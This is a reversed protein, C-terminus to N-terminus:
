GASAGSSRLATAGAVTAVQPPTLAPREPGPAGAPPAQPRPPAPLPFWDLLLPRLAHDALHLRDVLSCGRCRPNGWAGHPDGGCERRCLRCAGSAICESDPPLDEEEEQALADALADLRPADPIECSELPKGVPFLSSRKKVAPSRPSADTDSSCPRELSQSRVASVGPCALPAAAAGGAAVGGRPLSPVSNRRRGARPRASRLKPERSGEAAAEQESNEPSTAPAQGGRGRARRQEPRLLVEGVTTPPLLPLQEEAPPVGWLAEETLALARELPGRLTESRRRLSQRLQAAAERVFALLWLVRAYGGMRQQRSNGYSGLWTFAIRCLAEALARAGFRARRGVEKSTARTVHRAAPGDGGGRLAQHWTGMRTMDSPADLKRVALARKSQRAGAFPTPSAVAASRKQERSLEQQRAKECQRALEVVRRWPAVEDDRSSLSSRSLSPPPPGEGCGEQAERLHLLAEEGLADVTEVSEFIGRLQHTSSLAPVLGFDACFQQFERFGMSGGEAYCAHLQRFLPMYVALVHLVEPEVLLSRLRQEKMLEERFINVNQPMEPVQAGLVEEDDAAESDQVMFDLWAKASSGKDAFVRAPLVGSLLDGLKADDVGSDEIVSEPLRLRVIDLLASVFTSKTSSNSFHQRFVHSMLTLFLRWSLIPQVVMGNPQGRLPVSVLRALSDFQSVLRFYPVRKQDVLGLDLVLRCFTPRELGLLCGPGQAARAWLSAVQLVALIEPFSLLWGERQIEVGSSELTMERLTSNEREILVRNQYDAGRDAEAPLLDDRRVWPPLGLEFGAIGCFLLELQRSRVDDVRVRQDPPVAWLKGGREKCAELDRDRAEVAALAARRSIPPLSGALSVAPAEARSGFRASPLQQAAFSLVAPAEFRPAGLDDFYQNLPLKAMEKRMGTTRLVDCDPRLRRVAFSGRGPEAVWSDRAQM